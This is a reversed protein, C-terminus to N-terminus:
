GHRVNISFTTIKTTGKLSIFFDRPETGPTNKRERFVVEDRGGSGKTRADKGMPVSIDGLRSERREKM